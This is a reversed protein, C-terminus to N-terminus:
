VNDDEKDVVRLVIEEDYSHYHAGELGLFHTAIRISDTKIEWDFGPEDWAYPNNCCIPTSQEEPTGNIEYDNEIYDLIDKILDKVKGPLLFDGEEIKYEDACVGVAYDKGNLTDVVFAKDDSVKDIFSFLEKKAEALRKFVESVLIVAEEYGWSNGARDLKKNGIKIEQADDDFDISWGAGLESEVDFAEYEAKTAKYDKEEYCDRIEEAIQALEDSVEDTGVNGRAYYQIVVNTM